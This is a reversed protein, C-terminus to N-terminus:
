DADLLGAQRFRKEVRKLVRGGGSFQHGIVDAMSNPTKAMPWGKVFVRAHLDNATATKVRLSKMVMPTPRDFKDQMEEYTKKEVNKALFTLTKATALPIAKRGAKTLMAKVMSFDAKITVDAM